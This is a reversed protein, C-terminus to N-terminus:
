DNDSDSDGGSGGHDDNGDNNSDGGSDDSGSSDNGDDNSDDLFDGKGNKVDVGPTTNDDEGVTGVERKLVDGTAADYIMEVKDTGRIAEVKIQTAGIKVEIRSFGQAQLDKIITDSTIAAMSMTGAFALAASLLLRKMNRGKMWIPRAAQPAHGAQAAPSRCGNTSAIGHFSWAFQRKAM